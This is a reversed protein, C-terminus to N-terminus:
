HTALQRRSFRKKYKGRSLLGGETELSVKEGEHERTLYKEDM